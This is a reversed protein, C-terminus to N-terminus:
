GSSKVVGIGRNWGQWSARRYELIAYLMSYRKPRNLNVPTSLQNMCRSVSWRHLSLLYCAFQAWELCPGPRASAMGGPFGTATSAAGGCALPHAPIRPAAGQHTLDTLRFRCFVTVKMVANIFTNIGSTLTFPIKASTRRRPDTALCNDCPAQAALVRAPLTSLVLWNRVHRPVRHPRTQAAGAPRAVGQREANYKPQLYHRTSRLQPPGVTGTPLKPELGRQGVVTCQLLYWRRVKAPLGLVARSIRKLRGAHALEVADEVADDGGNRGLLAVCESDGVGVVQELHRIEHGM